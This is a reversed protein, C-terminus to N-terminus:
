RVVLPLFGAARLAPPPGVGVWLSGRALPRMGAPLGSGGPAGIGSDLLLAGHPSWLQVRASQPVATAVPSATSGSQAEVASGPPAEVASGPSAADAMRLTVRLRHGALGNVQAAGELMAVGDRVVLWRLATSEVQLAAADFRVEAAGV